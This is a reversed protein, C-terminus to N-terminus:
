LDGFTAIIEHSGGARLNFEDELPKTNVRQRSPRLTAPQPPQAQELVAVAEIMQMADMLAWLEDLLEQASTNEDFCNITVQRNIGPAVQVAIDGFIQVRSEDHTCPEYTARFGVAIDWNIKREGRIAAQCAAIYHARSEALMDPTWGPRVTVSYTLKAEKDAYKWLTYTSPITM